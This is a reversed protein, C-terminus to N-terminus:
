DPAPADYRRFWELIHLVKSIMQSPRKGIFHSAGPLEVLVTDVKRYKLAHYLQKAQSPPTRLDDMGVMVLTPTNVNGVLSIPSFRMYDEQNTWPVGPYRVEFYQFWNDANLLKSYWNMVPKVVAAARFRDSKGIMWASMIGGASGGTVYLRDEDIFGKEIVADIGSMVDDYDEGPYNHYLLDSFDEGYGTSGRPNPYFVVYGEAAFLQLEPSFREGYNLIPGGHNEVLLPYQQEPDFGPPTIIWGQIERGDASSEWTIAQTRGLDRYALLERNLHTLRTQRTGDLIAVDAPYEPRTINFALRNSASVSFSGGPYPRGISTGGIDRALERFDGDLTVLGLRTSGSEEYLVYLGSSDAAWTAADISLDRDRALRRFGEGTDGAQPDRSAIRLETNQYARRRDTFGLWALYRGDPSVVPQSAPGDDETIQQIDGSDVDITYLHSTRFDHEWDDSRNSSVYLQKADPSWAPHRHHFDGSSVQRASGGDAPAVFVHTFGPEIYGSGDREHYMRDTVRAAAAWSAGEPAEPMSVLQPPKSKVTLSFAIQEGDPSWRLENPTGSVRTVRAHEGSTLWYVHIDSSEADANERVYAIRSGDPSWRASTEAGEFSTLKRHEEGSASVLWLNGRRSDTLADMGMRRYLVHEGDPSIQPDDAWELEFVDMPSFPTQAQATSVTLLTGILGLLLPLLPLQSLRQSRM